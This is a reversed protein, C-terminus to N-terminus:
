IIKLFFHSRIFIRSFEKFIRVLQQILSNMYCTCGLNKLGLYGLTSREDASPSYNWPIKKPLNEIM